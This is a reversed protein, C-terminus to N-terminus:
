KKLSYHAAVCKEIKKALRSAMLKNFLRCLMYNSHAKLYVVSGLRFLISRHGAYVRYFFWCFEHQIRKRPFGPLDLAARFREMETDVSHPLLGQEMCYRYITTGPYPFFIYLWICDPQCARCCSITERFEEITETPIGVMAFVYVRLGNSKALAVANTIDDNSYRRNLM